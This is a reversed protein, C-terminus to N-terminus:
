NMGSVHRIERRPASSNLGSCNSLPMAHPEKIGKALADELLLVFPEHPAGLLDALAALPTLWTPRGKLNVTSIALSDAWGTALGRSLRWDDLPSTPSVRFREGVLLPVM